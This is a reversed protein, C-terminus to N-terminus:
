HSSRQLLGEVQSFSWSSPVRTGQMIRFEINVTPSDPQHFTGSLLLWSCPHMQCNQLLVFIGRTPANSYRWRLATLRLLRRFPFETGPPIVPGDQEQPIYIRFDSGGPQPLRLHSPLTHNRNRRTESWQTIASCVASGDERWLPRVVSVLYCSESLLRGVPLLIQIVQQRLWHSSKRISPAVHDAHRIGM